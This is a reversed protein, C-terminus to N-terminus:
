SQTTRWTTQSVPRKETVLAQERAAIRLGTLVVFLVIELVLSGLTVLIWAGGHWVTLLMYLGTIVTTLMSVFGLRNTSKVIGMIAHVEEPLRASRIQSLGIWELGLVVFFGLAGVIHLFL